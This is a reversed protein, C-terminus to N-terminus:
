VDELVEIKLPLNNNRDSAWVSIKSDAIEYHVLVFAQKAIREKFGTIQITKLYTDATAPGEPGYHFEIKIQDQNDAYTSFSFSGCCPYSAGEKVFPAISGNHIKIGFVATTRGSGALLESQYLVRKQSYVVEAAEAFGFLRELFKM